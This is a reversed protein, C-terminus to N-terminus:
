LSTYRRTFRGLSRSTLAAQLVQHSQTFNARITRSGDSLIFRYPTDDGWYKKDNAYCISIGSQFDERSDKQDDSFYCRVSYKLRALSIVQMVIREGDDAVENTANLNDEDDAEDNHNRCLRGYNYEDSAIAISAGATLGGGFVEETMM